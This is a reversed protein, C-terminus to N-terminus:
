AGLAIRIRDRRDFPSGSFELLCMRTDVDLILGNTERFYALLDDRRCRGTRRGIDNM